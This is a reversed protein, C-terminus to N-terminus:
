KETPAPALTEEAPTTQAKIPQAKLKEHTKHAMKKPTPKATEVNKVTETAKVGSEKATDTAAVTENTEVSSPMTAEPTAAFAAAPLAFLSAALVVRRLTKM